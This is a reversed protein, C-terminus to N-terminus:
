IGEPESLRISCEIVYNICFRIYGADPEGQRFPPMQVNYNGGLTGRVFPLLAIFRNYKKYDLGLAIIKMAHQMAQISDRVSDVFRAVDRLENHKRLGLSSSSLFTMNEGFSFPLRAGTRAGDTYADIMKHFALTIEVTADDFKSEACYAEAARLHERSEDPNVYEILSIDEFEIEFVLKAAEQFFQTTSARFAEIDLKSPLTGAHKLSVRAKNLRRMSEKQPFAPIGLKPPFLDWYDLFNPQQKGANLHESAIQLFIEIADHFTLLSAAAMLEPSRSQENAYNYLYKVFALRQLM